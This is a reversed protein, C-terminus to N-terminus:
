SLALRLRAAVRDIEGDTSSGVTSVARSVLAAASCDQRTSTIASERPAASRPSSFAIKMLKYALGRPGVLM